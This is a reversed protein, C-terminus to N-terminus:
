RAQLRCCMVNKRKTAMSQLSLLPAASHALWMILPNRLFIRHLSYMVFRFLALRVCIIRFVIDARTRDALSTGISKAGEARVYASAGAHGVASNWPVLVWCIIMASCIFLSSLFYPPNTGRSIRLFSLLTRLLFRDYTQPLSVNLAKDMNHRYHKYQHNKSLFVTCLLAGCLAICFSVSYM